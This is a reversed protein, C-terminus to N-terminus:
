LLIKKGSASSEHAAVSMKLTSIGNKLSIIKSENNNEICDLVHKLEKEYMENISENLPIKEWNKSNSDYLLIM